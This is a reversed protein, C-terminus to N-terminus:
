PKQQNRNRGAQKRSGKLLLALSGSMFMGDMYTVQGRRALGSVTRVVPHYTSSAQKRMMRMTTGTITSSRMIEDDDSPVVYVCSKDHHDAATCVATTTSSTSSCRCENFSTLAPALLDYGSTSTRHSGHSILLPDPAHCLASDCLHPFNPSAAVAASVSTVDKHNQMCYFDRQHGTAILAGKSTHVTDVAASYQRGMRLMAAEPRKSM